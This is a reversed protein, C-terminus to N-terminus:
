LSYDNYNPPNFQFTEPHVNLYVSNRAGIKGTHRNKYPIIEVINENNPLDPRAISEQYVTLVLDAAEFLGAGFRMDSAVPRPNPRKDINDQLQAIVWLPINLEAAISDLESAIRNYKDLEHNFKETFKIIQFYDIIVAGVQEAGGQTEIFQSIQQKILEPTLSKSDDIYLNNHEILQAIGATLQTWDETKLDGKNLAQHSIGTQTATLRLSLQASEMDLSLLLVKHTKAIHQAISLAFTTKGHFSSGNIVHLHGAIGGHTLEDIAAIGTSYGPIGERNINTEITNIVSNLYDSPSQAPKNHQQEDQALAALAIQTDQQASPAPPRNELQYHHLYDRARQNSLRRLQQGWANFTESEITEHKIKKVLSDLYASGGISDLQQQLALYTRVSLPNIHEKQKHLSHLAKFITRHIKQHFRNHYQIGNQLAKRLVKDQISELQQQISHPALQQQLSELYVSGRYILVGLLHQEIDTDTYNLPQPAELTPAQPQTNNHQAILSDLYQILQQTQDASIGHPRNELSHLQAQLSNYIGQQKSVTCLTWQSSDLIIDLQKKLASLPDSHQRLGIYRLKQFQWDYGSAVNNMNDMIQRKVEQLGSALYLDATDKPQQQAPIRQFDLEVLFGGNKQTAETAAIMGANDARDYHYADNDAIKVFTIHPYKAKYAAEIRSINQATLTCIVPMKIAAHTIISDAIGEQLFVYHAQAINGFTLHAYRTNLYKSYMKNSNSHALAQEYIRQLGCPKGTVIDHLLYAIFYGYKNKGYRGSHPLQSLRKKEIYAHPTPQLPTPSFTEWLAIEQALFDAAKTNNEEAKPASPSFTIPAKKVAALPSPHQTKTQRWLQKILEGSHYPTTHGGGQFSRFCGHAFPSGDENYDLAIRYSCQDKDKTTRSYGLKIFQRDSYDINNIRPPTIGHQQCCTVIFQYFDHKIEHEIHHSAEKLWQQYNHQQGM